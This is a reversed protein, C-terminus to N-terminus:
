NSEDLEKKVHQLFIDYVPRLDLIEDKLTNTFEPHSQVGFVKGDPANTYGVAEIVKDEPSIALIELDRGLDKISQHHISNVKNSKQNKIYKTLFNGPLFEIEHSITDYKEQSRHELSGALQTQTDQYLTGGLYVNLLQFGRCIGLIPKNSKFAFDMIELEYTDRYVDGPWKGNEIPEEGYSEPAIDSGGTFVFGDLEKLIPLLRKQTLNPIIVPLVDDACLYELMENEVFTLFKRNFVKREPDPRMFGATIGIKIM